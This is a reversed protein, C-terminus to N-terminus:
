SPVVERLTHSDTLQLEDGTTGRLNIVGEIAYEKGGLRFTLFEQAEPERTAVSSQTRSM